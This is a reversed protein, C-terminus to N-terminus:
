VSVHMHTRICACDSVGNVLCTILALATALTFYTNHFAHMYPVNSLGLRQMCRAVHSANGVLTTDCKIPLMSTSRNVQFAVLKTLGNKNPVFSFVIM